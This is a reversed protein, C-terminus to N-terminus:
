ATIIPDPIPPREVISAPYSTNLSFPGFLIGGIIIGMATTLKNGPNIAMLNPRLPGLKPTTFAQAELAEAIPSAYLSMADPDASM